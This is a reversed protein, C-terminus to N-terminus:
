RLTPLRYPECLADIAKEAMPTIAGNDFMERVFLLVALDLDDPTTSYGATYSVTITSNAEITPWDTDLPPYLKAGVLRATTIEQEDGSEDTYTVEATAPTPGWLLTFAYPDGPFAAFEQSVASATTLKKRTYNEVWSIASALYQTIRADHATGTVRCETKAEALTVTM